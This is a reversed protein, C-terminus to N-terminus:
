HPKGRYKYVDENEIVEGSGGRKKEKKKVERKQMGKQLRPIHNEKKTDYDCM